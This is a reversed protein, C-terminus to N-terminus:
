GQQEDSGGQKRNQGCDGAEHAQCKDNKEEQQRGRLVGNIKDVVGDRCKKIGFRQGFQVEACTNRAFAGSECHDRREQDVLLLHALQDIIELHAKETIVIGAKVEHQEGVQRIGDAAWVFFVTMRQDIQCRSEYRFQVFLILRGGVANEEQQM